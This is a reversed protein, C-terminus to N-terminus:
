QEVILKKLDKHKYDVVEVFPKFSNETFDGTTFDTNFTITELGYPPNHPGTFTQISITLHYSDDEKKLELIEGGYYNKNKFSKKYFNKVANDIYPFMIQLVFEDIVSKSQEQLKEEYKEM